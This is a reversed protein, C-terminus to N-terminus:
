KQKNQRNLKRETSTKRSNRIITAVISVIEEGETYLEKAETTLQNFLEGLIRIWYVSEDAEKKVIGYKYCFDNVTQASNAEKDNAGVSTISRSLQSIIPITKINRPVRDLFKLVRIVWHYVRDHIDIGHNRKENM